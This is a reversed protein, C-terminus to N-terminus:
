QSVSLIVVGSTSRKTAFFAPRIMSVAFLSLRTVPWFPWNVDWIAAHSYAARQLAVLSLSSVVTSKAMVIINTLQTDSSTM